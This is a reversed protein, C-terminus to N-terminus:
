KEWRSRTFNNPASMRNSNIDYVCLRTSYSSGGRDFGVEVVVSGDKEWVDSSFPDRGGLDRDDNFWRVCASEARRMQDASVGTANQMYFFGLAGLVVVALVGLLVRRDQMKLDM